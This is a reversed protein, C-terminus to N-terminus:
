FDKPSIDFDMFFTGKKDFYQYKLNVSLDRFPKMVPNTKYNQLAVPRIKSKLQDSNYDKALINVLTYKYVFTNNPASFTSDLRTEKDIMKPLEKNLESSTQKLVTDVNAPRSFVENVGVAGIVSSIVSSLIIMAFTKYKTKDKYSTM